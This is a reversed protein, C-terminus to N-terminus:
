RIIIEVRRNRPEKQGDPTVVAPDNEGHSTVDVICEEPIGRRILIKRIAHARAMALRDNGQRDGFRDSHGIISIKPLSRNLAATAIGPIEERSAPALTTRGFEFHLTYFLPAPPVAALVEGFTTEIADRKEPFPEGPAKGSGYLNVAYGSRDVVQSGEPNSVSIAGTKGSDDELLVVHVGPKPACSFLLALFVLGCISALCSKM